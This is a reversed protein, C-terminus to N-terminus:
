NLLEKWAEPRDLLHNRHLVNALNCVHKFQVAKVFLDPNIVRFVKTMTGDEGVVMDQFPTSGIMPRMIREIETDFWHFKCLVEASCYPSPLCAVHAINLHSLLVHCHSEPLRPTPYSKSVFFRRPLFFPALYRRAESSMRADVRFDGVNKVIRVVSISFTLTNCGFETSLFPANADPRWRYTVRAGRFGDLAHHVRRTAAVFNSEDSNLTSSHRSHRACNLLSRLLSYRSRVLRFSRECTNHLAGVCAVFCMCPLSFHMLLTGGGWDGLM